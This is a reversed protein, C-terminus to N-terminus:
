FLCLCLCHLVTCSVAVIGLPSWLGRLVARVLMGLRDCADLFAPSVPNHSTRIANYGLSKLQQVRRYDARDIAIAGSM